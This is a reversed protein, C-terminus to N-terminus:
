QNWKAFTNESEVPHLRSLPINKMYIGTSSVDTLTGDGVAEALHTVIMGRFSIDRAMWLTKSDKDTLVYNGTGLEPKNRLTDATEILTKYFHELVKQKSARYEPDSQLKDFDFDKETNVGNKKLFASYKDALSADATATDSSETNFKKQGQNVVNPLEQFGYKDHLSPADGVLDRYFMDLKNMKSQIAPGDYKSTEFFVRREDTLGDGVIHQEQNRDAESAGREYPPIAPFFVTNASSDHDEPTREVDVGRMAITGVEEPARLEQEFDKESEGFDVSAKGPTLDAALRPLTIHDPSGPQVLTHNDHNGDDAHEPLAVHRQGAEIAKIAEMLHSTPSAPHNESM